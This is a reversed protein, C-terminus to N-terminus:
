GTLEIEAVIQANQPVALARDREGRQNDDGRRQDERENLGRHVLRGGFDDHLGAGGLLDQRRGSVLGTGVCLTRDVRLDLDKLAATDFIVHAPLEAPHGVHRRVGTLSVYDRDARPARIRFLSRTIRVRIRTAVEIDAALLRNVVEERSAFLYLGLDVVKLA